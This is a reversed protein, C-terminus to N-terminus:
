RAVVLPSGGPVPLADFWPLGLVDLVLAALDLNRVPQAGEYGVRATGPEERDPNLDYLDAGEEVGAGWVVFPVRYNDPSTPDRHSTGSGGHDATLVITTRRRLGPRADLASLLRGVYGDSRRVAELYAPSMFGAIHGTVDPDAIHLFTLDDARRSLRGVLENLLEPADDLRYRDLKARGDDVGTTDRAGSDADWSRALVNFKPKSTYLATRLGADHAQDFIGPVYDENVDGLDGGTDENFTVHHGSPGAIRRGTLMGTHNPLTNTQELATRAELTSAGQVILQHLYPTGEPGLEGLARPNLGDISVAIVVPRPGDTVAAQTPEAVEGLPKEEGKM